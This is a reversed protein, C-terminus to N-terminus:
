SLSQEVELRGPVRVGSTTSLMQERHKGRAVKNEPAQFVVAHHIIVQTVRDSSPKIKAVASLVKIEQLHRFFIEHYSSLSYM